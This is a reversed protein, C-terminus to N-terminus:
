ARRIVSLSAGRLHQDIKDSLYGEYFAVRPENITYIVHRGDDLGEDGYIPEHRQIQPCISVHIRAQRQRKRALEQKWTRGDPLNNRDINFIRRQQQPPALKLADDDLEAFM